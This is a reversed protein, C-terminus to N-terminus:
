QNNNIKNKSKKQYKDSEEYINENRFYKTIKKDYNDNFMKEFNMKKIEPHFKSNQFEEEKIESLKLNEKSKYNKNSCPLNLSFIESPALYDYRTVLPKNKRLLFYYTITIYIRKDKTVINKILMSFVKIRKSSNKKFENDSNKNNHIHNRNSSYLNYKQQDNFSNDTNIKKINQLKITKGHINKSYYLNKNKINFDASSLSNFTSSQQSDNNIYYLHNSKHINVNNVNTDNFNISNSNITNNNNKINFTKHENITFGNNKNKTYNPRDYTQNSYDYNNNLNGNNYNNRENPEITKLQMSHGTNNNIIKTLIKKSSKNKKHNKKERKVSKIYKRIENFQSDIDSKIEIKLDNESSTLNEKKNIDNKNKSRIKRTQIQRYKKTLEKSDRFLENEKINGENKFSIDRNIIIRNGIRLSPSLSNSELLKNNPNRQVSMNNNNISLDKLKKLRPVSKIYYKNKSSISINNSNLKKDYLTRKNIKKYLKENKNHTINKYSDISNSNTIIEKYGDFNNMKNNFYINENKNKIQKVFFLFYKKIYIKSIKILHRYFEKCLKIRTEKLKIKLISSTKIYDIKKTNNYNNQNELQESSFFQNSKYNKDKFSDNILDELVKSHENVLNTLSSKLEDSNQIYNHYKNKDSNNKNFKLYLNKIKYNNNNQINEDVKPEILIENNGENEIKIYNYGLESELRNGKKVVNESKLYNYRENIKNNNNLLNQSKNEFHNNKNNYYKSNSNNSFNREVLVKQSFNIDNIQVNESDRIPSVEYLNKNDYFNNDLINYDINNYYQNQVKNEELENLLTSNTNEEFNKNQIIYNKKNTQNISQFSDRKTNKINENSSFDPKYKVKFLISNKPVVENLFPYKMQIYKSPFVKQEESPLNPNNKKNLIGRDQFSKM